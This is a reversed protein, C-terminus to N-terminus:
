STLGLPVLHVRSGQFGREVLKLVNADFGLNKENRYYKIRPDGIKRIVDRTEDISANDSVVIEIEQSWCL